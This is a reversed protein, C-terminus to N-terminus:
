WTTAASPPPREEHVPGSSATRRPGSAVSTVAAWIRPQTLGALPALAVGVRQDDEIGAVVDRTKGPQQALLRHPQQAPNAGAPHHV